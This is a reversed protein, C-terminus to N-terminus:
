DVRRYLQWPRGSRPAADDIVYPAGAVDLRRAPDRADKTDVLLWEPRQRWNGDGGGPLVVRSPVFLRYFGMLMSARFEAERDLGFGVMTATGVRASVHQLSALFNGRGDRYLDRIGAFQAAMVAALVGSWVARRWGPAGLGRRIVWAAALVLFPSVVALYRPPFFGPKGTMLKLLVLAGPVITLGAMFGGAPHNARSWARAAHQWAGLLALLLLLDIAPSGSVGAFYGSWLHLLAAGRLEPGGGHTIGMVHPVLVAAAACVPLGFLRAHLLWGDRPTLRGRAHRAATWFLAVATVAFTMHSLFGLVITGHLMGLDTWTPRELYRLLSLLALMSFLILCGYGRAETSHLVLPYACVALGMAVWAYARDEDLRRALLYTAGVAAVGAVFSLLRYRALPLVPSTGMLYLFLSNLHHNNDHHFRWFVGTWSPYDAVATLSWVEDIGYEQFLGPIRLAAAASMGAALPILWDARRRDVRGPLLIREGRVDTADAEGSTDPTQKGVLTAMAM